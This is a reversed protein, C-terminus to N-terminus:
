ALAHEAASRGAIRGFVFCNALSNGGGVYDPGVGGGTCEGAAYLGAISRLEQDLVRGEEDTLPGCQTFGIASPRLEAGYFPPQVLSRLWRPDKRCDRDLGLAASENYRGVTRLLGAEPLGLKGALEELTEAEVIAGAALEREIGEASWIKAPKQQGDFLVKFTPLEPSGNEARTRADFLLFVRGGVDAIRSRTGGHVSTESFLRKGNPGVLLGWAPLYPDYPRDFAGGSTKVNLAAGARDFGAITAGLEEVLAFVDGRSSEPGQYFVWEGRAALTPLYKAILQRNAGFGGTALVVAGAPVEDGGAAVGAVSGGDRLLRDVRRDLRIEIGRARCCEGLVDILYKGGGEPSGSDGVHARPVREMGGRMVERWRVGLESLWAITAAGDYVIRAVLGPECAYRNILLYDDYFDDASDEFGFRRQVDTGAAQILGGAMRGAGGVVSEAELILVEAGSERAAVGATLGATGSGVVVVDIGNSQM